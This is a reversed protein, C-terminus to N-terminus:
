APQLLTQTATRHGDMQRATQGDTEAAAAHPPNAATRGAILLYQDIEAGGAGLLLPTVAACHVAARCDAAFALLPV